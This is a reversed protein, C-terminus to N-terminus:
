EKLTLGIENTFVDGDNLLRHEIRTCAGKILAASLVDGESVPDFDPGNYRMTMDAQGTEESYEVTMRIRVDKGLKPLLSQVCLEEFVSQMRLITRQNMLNKRGFQEMQNNIGIFDFDPSDIQIDLVKLRRIFQRTREKQPNEFIQEPTGDEYIEGKDMYFIRTSVDRAFKMEHTVIMMTLGQKALSRIVSLVEGVMTPDLASTPEDFLIIEPNMALTRAIAVRQKQGGSLEDPYNLAKSAMGVTRLLRMGNEYAKQKSIGKLAVPAMIINEIVTLHGFLNFSQFVMGTRRRLLRLDTKRDGTDEGFVTVKGSTPNELRNICRLMTSKGTGSPGIVTIVEGRHIVANVNELPTVGPYVKKLHELHILENSEFARNEQASEAVNEDVDPDIGKPLSRPKHKPDIKIEIRGIAWIIVASMLFYIIAIAILPFFAEYTRSRIIDGVKTLDEISIYGVISTLKMMAVFEGKYLPLIHRVAQPMIVRQFTGTKGFGLSIAAEWQGKDIAEIGTNLIGAVSVAFIISFAVIGVLVPNIEVKGFIVFFTIMLVVLQPIGQMLTSFAQATWHIPRKKSRICLCLLFGLVTGIIGACLTIELTVVLGRLILQWRSERVFTKEFSKEMKKFFGTESSVGADAAADYDASVVLVTEVFSYPISFNLVERREPTDFLNSIIYDVKGAAGATIVGAWDYTKVELEANCWLAFRKALEMDFGTIDTGEYFSYPEVLGTTGVKITFEPNQPVEIEHMTYDHKIMWRDQMDKLTGDANKEKLFDNILKEANPIDTKPSIGVAKNAPSGIVADNYIKLGTGGSVEYSEFTSKDVAFAKAKKSKVALFGNTADSVVSYEADPYIKKTQEEPITGAEIAIVTGPDNMDVKGLAPTAALNEKRCLFATGGSYYSECFDVNEQREPTIVFCSAGIDAKDQALYLFISPFKTNIFKVGMDLRDAIKLVLETELGLPVDREGDHGVYIMPMTTPDFAFRLVGNRREELNYKEWDIKMIEEDASFWKKKLAEITGDKIYERVIESVPETLDGNKQLILSFDCTAALEPFMGFKGEFQSSLYELVPSDFVVADADGKELSLIMTSFDDYYRWTLDKFDNEMMKEYPTGTLTALNKGNFDALTKFLLEDKKSNNSTCSVLTM